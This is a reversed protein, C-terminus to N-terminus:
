TFQDDDLKDDHQDNWIDAVSIPGFEVVFFPKKHYCPNDFWGGGTQYMAVCDNNAGSGNISSPQIPANWNNYAGNYPEGDQYFIIGTKLKGNGIWVFTEEDDLDTAGIWVAKNASGASALLNVIYANEWEDGIIALYGQYGNYCRSTADAYADHWNIHAHQDGVIQYGGVGDQAARAIKDAYFAEIKTSLTTRSREVVSAVFGQHVRPLSALKTSYKNLLATMLGDLLTAPDSIAVDTTLLGSTGNEEAAGDNVVTTVAAEEGEEEGEEDDEDWTDGKLRWCQAADEGVDYIMHDSLFCIRHTAKDPYDPLFPEYELEFMTCVEPDQDEDDGDEDALTHTGINKGLLGGWWKPTVVGTTECTMDWKVEIECGEELKLM